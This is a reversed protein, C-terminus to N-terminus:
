PEGTTSLVEDEKMSQLCSELCALALEATIEPHNYEESNDEDCGYPAEEDLGQAYYEAWEPLHHRPFELFSKMTFPVGVISFTNMFCPSGIAVGPFGQAALYRSLACDGPHNAKGVVKKPPLISLWSRVKEPELLQLIQDKTEM